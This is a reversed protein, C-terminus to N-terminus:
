RKKLPRVYKSVKLTLKRPLLPCKLDVVMFMSSHFVKKTDM